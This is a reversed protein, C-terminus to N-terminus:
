DGISGGTAGVASELRDTRSAAVRVSTGDALRARLAGRGASELSELHRLNVISSRHVRLFGAPELRRALETLTERTLHSTGELHVRAYSGAGEIWLIEQVPILEVRDGARVPLRQLESTTTSGARVAPDGPPFRGSRRRVTAVLAGLMAAYLLLDAQLQWPGAHRWWLELQALPVSGIEVLLSVSLASARVLVVLLVGLAAHVGLTLADRGGIGGISALRQAQFRAVPLALALLLSGLAAFGAAALLSDQGPGLVIGGAVAGWQLLGALAAAALWSAVTTGDDLAEPQVTRSTPAATPTM